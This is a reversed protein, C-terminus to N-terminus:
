KTYSWPTRFLKWYQSVVLVSNKLLFIELSLFYAMQYGNCRHLHWGTIKEGKKKRRGESGWKKELERSVAGAALRLGLRVTHSNLVDLIEEQLILHAKLILCCLGRWIGKSDLRMFDARVPAPSGRVSGASLATQRTISLKIKPASLTKFTNPESIGNQKRGFYIWLRQLQPWFHWTQIKREM